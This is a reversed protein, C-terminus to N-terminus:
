YNSLPPCPACVGARADKCIAPLFEYYDKGQEYLVWGDTGITSNNIKTPCSCCTNIQIGLVEKDQDIIDDDFMCLNNRCVPTTTPTKCPGCAVFTECTTQKSYDKGPVYTEWGDKGIETKNIPEPCVCCGKPLIGVTCDSDSNCSQPDFYIPNVGGDDTPQTFRKGDRTECIGPYIFLQQSGNAKVCEEFSNVAPAALFEQYAALGGAGLLIGVILVITMYILRLSLRSPSASTVSSQQLLPQNRVM